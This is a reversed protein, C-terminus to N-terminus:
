DTRIERARAHRAIGRGREDFNEVYNEKSGNVVIRAGERALGLAIGQGLNRSSGTVVAVRDQLKM